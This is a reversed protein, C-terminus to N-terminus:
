RKRCLELMQWIELCLGHAGDEGIRDVIRIGHCEDFCSLCLDSEFKICNGDGANRHPGAHEMVQMETLDPM